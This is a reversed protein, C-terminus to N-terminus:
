MCRSESTYCESHAVASFIYMYYEGHAVAQDVVPRGQHRHRAQRGQSDGHQRGPSTFHQLQFNLKSTLLTSTACPSSSPLTKCLQLQLHQLRRATLRSELEFNLNFDAPSCATYYKKQTMTCCTTTTTYLSVTYKTKDVMLRQPQPPAASRV